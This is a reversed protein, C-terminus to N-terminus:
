KFLRPAFDKLDNRWVMWSHGGPMESFEYEIKNKEFVKLMEMGNKYAIDEPGGQTFLLIKATNNLTPSIEALRKDGNEYMEKNDAFWGSSMVNIYGFMGPHAMFSELVQLGGMSLGALARHNADKYVNYNSEIYPIIDNVFDKVFSQVDMGGDPMVVIMEKCKGEALLNDMIMGARGVGLWALESDGGGHILYFVPLKNNKANYGPPTWVQMNRITNTTSSYYKIASVAGHPVDNRLAFFETEGNPLIDILASTKYADPAKPDYVKVGDVVFNYRYTGTKVNPVVIKWVGNDAKKSDLSTGWPVIDGGLTVSKADPAYIQFVVDGNALIKTSKLTDNPTQTRNFMQAQVVGSLLILSMLMLLNHIKSNKMFTNKVSIIHTIRFTLWKAQFAWKLLNLRFYIINKYVETKARGASCYGVQGQATGEFASKSPTSITM